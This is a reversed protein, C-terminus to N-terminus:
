MWDGTMRRVEYPNDRARIVKWVADMWRKQISGQKKTGEMVITFIMKLKHVKLCGIHGFWELLCEEMCRQVSKKGLCISRM